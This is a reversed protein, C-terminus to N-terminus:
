MLNIFSTLRKLVTETTLFLIVEIAEGSNACYLQLKEAVVDVGGENLATCMKAVLISYTPTTKDGGSESDAKSAILDGKTLAAEGIGVYLESTKECICNVVKHTFNAMFPTAVDLLPSLQRLVAQIHVIFSEYESSVLKGVAVGEVGEKTARELSELADRAKEELGGKKDSFNREVCSELTKWIIDDTKTDLSADPVHACMETMNNHFIALAKLLESPQQEVNNMVELMAALFKEFIRSAFSQLQDTADKNEAEDEGLFLTKYSLCLEKFESLFGSGLIDVSVLLDTEGEADEAGKAIKEELTKHRSTIYTSRLSGPDSDLQILLTVCEATQEPSTADDSVREEMSIKLKKILDTSELKATQFCEMSSAHKEMYPLAKKYCTVAETWRNQEVCKQIRTPLEFIFQLKKLLGRTRNLEEIKTRRDALGTNIVDSSDNINGIASALESTKGDMGEVRGKM